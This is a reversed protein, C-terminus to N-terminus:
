AVPWTRTTSPPNARRHRCHHVCATLSPVAVSVKVQGGAVAFGVGRHVGASLPWYYGLTEVTFFDCAM